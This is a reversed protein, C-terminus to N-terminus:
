SDRLYDGLSRSGLPVESAREEMACAGPVFPGAGCVSGPLNMKKQFISGKRGARAGASRVECSPCKEWRGEGSTGPSSWGHRRHGRWAEEEPFGEKFGGVGDLGPPERGRKDRSRIECQCRDSRGEGRRGPSWGTGMKTTVADEAELGVGLLM